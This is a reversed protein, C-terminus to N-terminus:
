VNTQRHWHEHESGVVRNQMTECQHPTDLWPLARWRGVDIAHQLLDFTGRNVSELKLGAILDHESTSERQALTFRGVEELQVL